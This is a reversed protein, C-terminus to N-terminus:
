YILVLVCIDGASQPRQKIPAMQTPTAVKFAMPSTQGVGAVHCNEILLIFRSNVCTLVIFTVCKSFILPAYLFFHHNSPHIVNLLSTQDVNLMSLFFLFFNVLYIDSCSSFIFEAADIIEPPPGPPHCSQM